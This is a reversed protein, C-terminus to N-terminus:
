LRIVGRDQRTRKQGPKASQRGHQRREEPSLSEWYRRMGERAGAQSNANRAPNLHTLDEVPLGLTARSVKESARANILPPQKTAAICTGDECPFGQALAGRSIGLAAMQEEYTELNM